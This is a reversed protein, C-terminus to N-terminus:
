KVPVRIATPAAVFNKSLLNWAPQLDSGFGEKHLTVYKKLPKLGASSRPDARVAVM